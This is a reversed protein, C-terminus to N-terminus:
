RVWAPFESFVKHGFRTVLSAMWYGLLYLAGFVAVIRALVGLTQEQVQTLAQGIAVVLGIALAAVLPPLSALAVVLLAERTTSLFTAEM